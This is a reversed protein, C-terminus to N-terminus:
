KEHQSSIKLMIKKQFTGKGFLENKRTLVIEGKGYLGKIGVWGHMSRRSYLIYIYIIDVKKWQLKLDKM